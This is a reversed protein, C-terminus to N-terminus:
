LTIVGNRDKFCGEFGYNTLLPTSFAKNILDDKCELELVLDKPYEPNDV